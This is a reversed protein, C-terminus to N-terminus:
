GKWKGQRIRRMGEIVQQYQEAQPATESTPTFTTQWGNDNNEARNRHNNEDPLTAGSLQCRHIPISPALCGTVYGAVFLLVSEYWSM